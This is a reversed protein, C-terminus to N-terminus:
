YYILLVGDGGAGGASGQGGVSGSRTYDVGNDDTSDTIWGYVGGNNGGAGGGNGGGGGCGYLPKPHPLANAGDGGRGSDLRDGYRIYGEYHAPTFTAPYGPNGSAGFAAGGGGGGSARNNLKGMTRTLGIGGAGGNYNPVSGGAYGAAGNAGSLSVDDTRGGDGGKVGDAGPAAYKEGSFPEYYGQSLVGSESSINGLSASSVTTHTGATGAGGNREGGVGGVGISCTLVEGPTIDTEVTYVKGQQGTAGADGGAPIRQESAYYYMVTGAESDTYITVEGQWPIYPYIVEHAGDAGDNGGQGGSGAQILVARIYTVGDPVTWTNGHLNIYAADIVVCKTFADGNATPVYGDIVTCQAGIVSTVLTDQKVLFGEVTEGFSDQFIYRFGCRLPSGDATGISKMKVSKANKYYSMLRRAVNLSNISNVLENDTVRKVREADNNPNDELVRLQTTHVYYKGVMTGVGSIEAYNVHRTHITLSSESGSAPAITNAVVPNDFVVILHDAPNTSEYLTEYQANSSEFFAHETVEVKNAPLQYDVSGQMAIKSTPIEIQSVVPYDILYDWIGYGYGMIAGASFLVRHLNNRATDYPLHGSVTATRTLTTTPMYSVTNGIIDQLVDVISANHYIGGVHIRSDLLGIGSTCTLKFGYKSVRDVSKLYGKAYLASDVYWWIPTGYPLERMYQHIDSSGQKPQVFIAEDDSTYLYEGDSTLLRETPNEWRVVVSFQDISLENGIVDLAFSGKFGGLEADANTFHYLSDSVSGVYIDNTLLAM